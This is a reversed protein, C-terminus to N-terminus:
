KGIHVRTRIIKAVPVPYWHGDTSQVTFSKFLIFIFIFYNYVLIYLLAAHVHMAVM